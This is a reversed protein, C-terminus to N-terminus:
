KEELKEAFRKPLNRVSLIYAYLVGIALLVLLTMWPLGSGLLPLILLVSQLMLLCRALLAFSEVKREEPLPYLKVTEPYRLESGIMPLQMAMLYLSVLYVGLAAWYNSVFSLVVAAFLQFRFYIGLYESHRIFTRAYLYFYPHKRDFPLRSVLRVLWARETVRNKVAPIDVFFNAWTRYQSLTAEELRVLRTWPFRVSKGRVKKLLFLMAAFVLLGLGMLWWLGHYLAYFILGSLLFREAAALWGRRETLLELARAQVNLFKLVATLLLSWWFGTLDGIHYGYVPFLLIAAAVVARSVAVLTSYRVAARWYEEMRAEAPLLFVLDPEVLLSRVACRAAVFGLVAAMVVFLPFDPEIGDLFARYGLAYLITLGLAVILSGQNYAIQAAVRMGKLWAVRLRHRYLTTLTLKPVAKGKQERSM